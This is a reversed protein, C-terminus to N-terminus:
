PQEHQLMRELSVGEGHAAERLLHVYVRETIRTNSHGLWRSVRHLSVGAELWLSGATHRLEHLKIQRVEAAKCLSYFEKRLHGTTPSGRATRVILGDGGTEARWDELLEVAPAALPILRNSTKTKLHETLTPELRDDVAQRQVHVHPQTGGAARNPLDVLDDWQLGRLEGLRLGLNLTLYYAIFLPHKTVKEHRIFTATESPEWCSAENSPLIPRMVAGDAYPSRDILRWQVARTLASSLTAAASRAVYASHDKEVRRQWAQLRTPDLKSLRLRGLAPTIHNAVDGSYGRWTKRSVQRRNTERGHVPEIQELWYELYEDLTPDETALRGAHKRQNLERLDALAERETKRQPGEAQRQRGAM